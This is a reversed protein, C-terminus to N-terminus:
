LLLMRCNHSGYQNYFTIKVDPGQDCSNKRSGIVPNSHGFVKTPDDCLGSQGCGVSDQEISIGAPGLEPKVKENM